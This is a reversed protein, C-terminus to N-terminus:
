SNRSGVMMQIDTTTIVAFLRRFYHLAKIWDAALFLGIANYHYTIDIGGKCASNNSLFQVKLNRMNLCPESTAISTHGFLYITQDCICNRIIEENGLLASHFM